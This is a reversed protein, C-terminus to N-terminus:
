FLLLKSLSYLLRKLPEGNKREKAIKVAAQLLTYGTKMQVTNLYEKTKGPDLVEIQNKISVFNAEYCWNIMRNLWQQVPQNEKLIRHWKTFFPEFDAREIFVEEIMQLFLAKKPEVPSVLAGTDM